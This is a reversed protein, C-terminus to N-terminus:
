VEMLKAFRIYNRKKDDYHRMFGESQFGLLGCWQHQKTADELNSTEVRHIRMDKMINELQNKIIKVLRVGYGKAYDSVITVCHGTHQSVQLIGGIVIIRGDDILSFFMGHEAALKISDFGNADFSKLDYEQCQFLDWHDKKYPILKM